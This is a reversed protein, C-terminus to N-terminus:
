AFLAMFARDDQEKEAREAERTAAELEARRAAWETAERMAKAIAAEKADQYAQFVEASSAACSQLFSPDEVPFEAEPAEEAQDEEAEEEEPEEEPDFVDNDEAWRLVDDFYLEFRDDIPEFNLGGDHLYWNYGTEIDNLIDRLDWWPGYDRAYRLEENIYDDMDGECYVNDMLDCDQQFCFDKLDAFDAITEDFEARTM